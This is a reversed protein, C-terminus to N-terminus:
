APIVGIVKSSVSLINSLIARLEKNERELEKLRILEKEMKERELPSFRTLKVGELEEIYAIPFRIAPIKIESLIGEKRYEDITKQSVGWRDALEQKTLVTKM